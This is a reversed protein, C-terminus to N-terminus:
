QSAPVVTLRYRVDLSDGDFPPGFVAGFRIEHEGVPLPALMIYYGDAAAPSVRSDPPLNDYVPEPPTRYLFAPSKQRHAVLDGIHNGNITLHMEEVPVSDIVTEAQQRVEDATKEEDPTAYNIVPFFIHQRESVDITRMAVEEGPGGTLFFVPGHQGVYAYRGEADTLPSVSKPISLVWQWWDVAWEAQSRGAVEADPPLVEVDAASTSAMPLAFLCVGALLTLTALLRAPNRM